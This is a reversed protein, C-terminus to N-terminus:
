EQANIVSLCRELRPHAWYRITESQTDFEIVGADDLKPLHNHHMAVRVADDQTRQVSTEDESEHNSVFAVLDAVTALDDETQSLYSLVYRRHSHSLIDFITDLSLDPSSSSDKRQSTNTPERDLQETITKSDSM